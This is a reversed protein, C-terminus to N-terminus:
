RTSVFSWWEAPRPRADPSSALREITAELEDIPRASPIVEWMQDGPLEAAITRTLESSDGYVYFQIVDRDSDWTVTNISGDVDDQVIESIALTSDIDLAKMGPLDAAITTGEPAPQSIAVTPLGPAAGESSPRPEAVAPSAAVLAASILGLSCAGAFIRRKM